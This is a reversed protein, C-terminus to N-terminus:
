TLPIGVQEGLRDNAQLQSRRCSARSDVQYGMVKQVM